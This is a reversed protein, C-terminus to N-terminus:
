RAPREGITLSLKAPAGGRILDLQVQTGVSEPTLLHMVQRVRNVPKGNWATIIDGVLLGAKVAPGDPDLSIAVVGAPQAV